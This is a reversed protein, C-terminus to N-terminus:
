PAEPLPMWHTVTFDPDLPDGDSDRVIEDRWETSHYYSSRTFRYGATTQKLGNSDRGGLIVTEREEPLRDKVSIWNM